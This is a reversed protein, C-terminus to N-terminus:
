LTRSRTAVVFATRVVADGVGARHVRQGRLDDIGVLYGVEVYSSMIAEATDEVLVLM